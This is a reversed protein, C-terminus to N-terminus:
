KKPYSNTVLEIHHLFLLNSLGKVGNGLSFQESQGVISKANKVKNILGTYIYISTVCDLLFLLFLASFGSVM